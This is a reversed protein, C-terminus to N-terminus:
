SNSFINIQFKLSIILSIILQGFLCSKCEAVVVFVVVEVAVVVVIVVAIVLVVIETASVLIASSVSIFLQPFM